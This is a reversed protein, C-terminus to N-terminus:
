LTVIDETILVIDPVVLLPVLRAIVVPLIAEEARITARPEERLRGERTSRGLGVGLLVGERPKRRRGALPRVTM